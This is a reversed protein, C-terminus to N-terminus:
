AAATNARTPSADSCADGACGHIMEAPLAQPVHVIGTVEDYGARRLHIALAADMRQAHQPFWVALERAMQRIPKLDGTQGLTVGERLVQLVVRHQVSHCNSTAFHTDRMWRDEADFHRQTHAVLTDWRDLLQVEDAEEVAGLLDVFERHTDDMIPLDLSLADSWELFAM